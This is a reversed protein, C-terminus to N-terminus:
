AKTEKKHDINNKEKELKAKSRVRVVENNLQETAGKLRVNNIKLYEYDSLKKELDSVKKQM